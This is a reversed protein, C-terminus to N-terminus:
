RKGNKNLILGLLPLFITKLTRSPHILLNALGYQILNGSLSKLPNSSKKFLLKKTIYGTSLGLTATLINARFDDSTVVESFVDRVVNVPNFSRYLLNLQENLYQKQEDMEGELLHITYNLDETTKINYM